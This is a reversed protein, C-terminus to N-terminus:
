KWSFTDLKNRLFSIKDITRPSFGKTREGAAGGPLCSGLDSRLVVIGSGDGIGLLVEITESSQESSLVDVLDSSELGGRIGLPM